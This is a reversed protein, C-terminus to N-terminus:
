STFCVNRGVLSTSALTVRSCSSCLACLFRWVPVRNSTTTTKSGQVTSGAATRVLLDVIVAFCAHEGGRTCETTTGLEFSPRPPHVFFFGLKGTRGKIQRKASHWKAWPTSLWTRRSRDRWDVRPWPRARRRERERNKIRGAVSQVYSPPSSRPAAICKSGFATVM